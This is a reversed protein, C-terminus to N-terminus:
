DKKSQEDKKGKRIQKIIFKIIFINGSVLLIGLVVGIILLTTDPASIMEGIKELAVMDFVILLFLGIIVIVRKM